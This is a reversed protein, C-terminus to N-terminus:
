ISRAVSEAESTTGVYTVVMRHWQAALEGKGCCGKDVVGM